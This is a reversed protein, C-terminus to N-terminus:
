LRALCLNAILLQVQSECRLFDLVNSQECAQAQGVFFALSERSLQIRYQVVEFFELL